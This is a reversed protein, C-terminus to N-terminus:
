SNICKIQLQQWAEADRIILQMQQGIVLGGEITEGKDARSGLKEM